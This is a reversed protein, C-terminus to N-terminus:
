YLTWMYKIYLFVYFMSLIFVMSFVLMENDERTDYDCIGLNVFKIKGDFSCMKLAEEINDFSKLQICYAGNRFTHTKVCTIENSWREIRKETSIPQYDAYAISILTFLTPLYVFTILILGIKNM